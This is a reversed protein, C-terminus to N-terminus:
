PRGLPLVLVQAVEVVAREPRDRNVLDERSVEEVILVQALNGRLQALRDEERRRREDFAPRVVALLHHHVLAEAAVVGRDPEALEGLRQNTEAAEDDADAQVALVHRDLLAHAEEALLGEQFLRARAALGLAAGEIGRVDDIRGALQHQQLQALVVLRLQARFVRQLCNWSVRSPLPVTGSHSCRARISPSSLPAIM